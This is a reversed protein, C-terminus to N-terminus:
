SAKTTPAPAPDGAAGGTGWFFQQTVEAIIERALQEAPKGQRAARHELERLQQPSFDLRIKHFSIGALDDIKAALQKPSTCPLRGVMAEVKELLDGSFTISRVGPATEAAQRLAQVLVEELPLGSKEAYPLFQDALDDPVTLRM